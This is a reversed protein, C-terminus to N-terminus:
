KKMRTKVRPTFTRSKQEGCHWVYFVYYDVLVVIANSVTFRHNM